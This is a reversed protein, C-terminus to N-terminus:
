DHDVGSTLYNYAEAYKVGSVGAAVRELHAIFAKDTESFHWAKNIM